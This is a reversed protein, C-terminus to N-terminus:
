KLSITTQVIQNRVAYLVLEGVSHIQLKRMVNARHSEATKVSLGLLAAVEKSSRGEALLQVVERERTTLARSKYQSRGARRELFGDLVEDAVMPTFYPKNRLISEVGNILEQAADSKLLYGKAGAELVENIIQESPHITLVLVKVAPNTKTIQRTADVGNLYPMGVDVIVIDPKLLQAKEVAERGNSAEGCIEWGPREQLVARIGQRVLDHDDALLIRVPGSSVAKETFM